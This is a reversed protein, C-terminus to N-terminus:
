PVVQRVEEAPNQWKHLVHTEIHANEGQCSYSNVPLLTKIEVNQRIHNTSLYLTIMHGKFLSGLLDYLLIVMMKMQITETMKAEGRAM